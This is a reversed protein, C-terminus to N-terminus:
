DEDDPDDSGQWQLGHRTVFQHLEDDFTQRAHHTEQHRIYSSTTDLLNVGISFAAYGKQWAFKSLNGFRINIWRSSAGKAKKLVDAVSITTPLSLLLHAHDSAGNAAIIKVHIENFINALYPWLECRIEPTLLPERGKTAFVCHILMCTYTHAM